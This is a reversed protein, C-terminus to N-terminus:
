EEAFCEGVAHPHHVERKFRDRRHWAVALSGLFASVMAFLCVNFFTAPSKQSSIKQGDEIIQVEEVLQEKQHEKGHGKAHKKVVQVNILESEESSCGASGASRNTNKPVCQSFYPSEGKCTCGDECCDFGDWDEQGGNKKGGCQKGM